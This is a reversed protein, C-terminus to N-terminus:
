LGPTLLALLIRWSVISKINSTNFAQLRHSRELFAPFILLFHTLLYLVSIDMFRHGYDTAESIKTTHSLMLHGSFWLQPEQATITIFRWYECLSDLFLRLLSQSTAPGIVSPQQIPFAILSPFAIHRVIPHSAFASHATAPLRYVAPSCPAILSLTTWSFVPVVSPVVLLRCCVDIRKAQMAVLLTSTSSKPFLLKFGSSIM